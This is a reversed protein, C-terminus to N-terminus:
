SKGPFAGGGRSLGRYLEPRRDELLHNQESVWKDDALALDVEALGVHDGEIPAQALRDGDPGMVQSAGTFILRRGVREEAGYRNATVAFVRNEVCRAFLAQQCWPLVLNAAHALVQAGQLALSRATEPFVWDFCIMMGIRGAPTDIVAPPADGPAFLEKERGFLHIKRYNHLAGAPTALLSSNFVADGALEPYGIVIVAGHQAALQLATESTPGEGLPEALRRAEATDAIEYGSTALEPFVLLDAAQGEQALARIRELNADREGFAPALQAYGLTTTSM